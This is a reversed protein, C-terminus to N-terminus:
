AVRRVALPLINGRIERYAQRLQSGVDRRDIEMALALNEGSRMQEIYIAWVGRRWVRPLGRFINHADVARAQSQNERMRLRSVEEFVRDSHDSSQVRGAGEPAGVRVNWGFDIVCEYIHQAWDEFLRAVDPYEAEIAEVLNSAKRM